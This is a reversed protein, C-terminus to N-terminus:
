KSFNYKAEKDKADTPATKSYQLINNQLPLGGYYRYLDSLGGRYDKAIKDWPGDKGFFIPHGVAYPSLFNGTFDERQFDEQGYLDKFSADEDKHQM